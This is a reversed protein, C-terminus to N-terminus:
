PLDDEQPAPEPAPAEDKSQDNTVEGTDGNVILPITNAKESIEKNTIRFADDSMEDFMTELAGNSFDKPIKKIANNRMKREIMAEKSHLE